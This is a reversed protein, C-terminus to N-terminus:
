RARGVDKEEVPGPMYVSRVKIALFVLAAVMVVTVFGTSVMQTIYGISSFAGDPMTDNSTSNSAAVLTPLASWTASRVTKKLNPLSIQSAVHQCHEYVTPPPQQRNMGHAVAAVFLLSICLGKIVAM